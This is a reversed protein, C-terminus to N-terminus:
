VAKIFVCAVTTHNVASLKHWSLVCSKDLFLRDNKLVGIVVIVVERGSAATQQKNCLCKREQM